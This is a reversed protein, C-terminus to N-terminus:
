LRGVPGDADPQLGGVTGTPSHGSSWRVRTGVETRVSRLPRVDIVVLFAHHDARARMGATPRKSMVLHKRSPWPKRRVASLNGIDGLHPRGSEHQYRDVVPFYFLQARHM